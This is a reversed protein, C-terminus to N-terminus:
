FQKYIFLKILEIIEDKKNVVKKKEDNNFEQLVFNSQEGQAFEHGIGFRLRAYDQGLYKEINRLGNHGGSSGKERFRIECFPINIDDVLVLINKINIKFWNMWYQVALGSNNVYTTPKILYVNNEKNKLKAIYAYKKKIFHIDYQEAFFDLMIFGMNHRTNKYEEGINGIGVILWDNM